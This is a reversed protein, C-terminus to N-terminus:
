EGWGAAHIADIDTLGPLGGVFCLSHGSPTVFYDPYLAREYLHVKEGGILSYPSEGALYGCGYFTQDFSLVRRNKDFMSAPIATLGICERFTWAFTEVDPCGSFLGGPIDQLGSANFTQNFERAGPSSDFLGAPVHALSQCGLFALSFSRASTCGEFLDEPVSALSTCGQFVGSFSEIQTGSRFLGGPVSVLSVCGSFLDNCFSVKSFFGETDSALSRLSTLNRFGAVASVVGLNGWQLVSVIGSRHPIEDAGLASVTGSVRVEFDAPEAVTYTHQMWEGGMDGSYRDLQGDGWDVVCDVTGRLPLSVTFNNAFSPRVSLVMDRANPSSSFAQVVTLTGLVDAGDGSLLNLVAQRLADTRNADVTLLLEYSDGQGSITGSIWDCSTPKRLVVGRSSTIEVSFRGGASPATIRSASMEFYSSAQIVTLEAATCDPNEEPCLRILASRSTVGPNPDVSLVVEGAVDGRTREVHVWDADTRVAVQFNGAYPVSVNGGRWDVQFVAAGSLQLRRETFYVTRVTSYGAGDSLVVVVYGDAYPDPCTVHVLGEADGTWEIRTRYQGDSAASVLVGSLNEGVVRFPVALTEGAQIPLSEDPLLALELKRYRPIAIETGDALILTVITESTLEVECFAGNGPMGASGIPEWSSGDDYSVWWSGGETKIQPTTGDLGSARVKEGAEDLLWEDGLTWYWLGDADQRLGIQPARTESSPRERAYLIVPGSKSLNLVYGVQEGDETWPTVSVIYDNQQLSTVIAQLSALNTNMQNVRTRLAVFASWTPLQLVTGDSLTILVYDPHSTDVSRFAAGGAPAGAAPRWTEGGDVSVSWADDVAQLQPSIGGDAPLRAGADSLLWAGNLTWCYRGTEDRRVGVQPASGEAVESRFYASGGDGFALSYGKLEGDRRDEVVSSVAGGSRVEEMLRRLSLIEDNIERVSEKLAQIEREHSELQERIGTLGGDSCSFAALM